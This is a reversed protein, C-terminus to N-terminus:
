ENNDKKILLDFLKEQREAWRKGQWRGMRQGILYSIVFLSGEAAIIGVVMEFGMKGEKKKHKKGDTM